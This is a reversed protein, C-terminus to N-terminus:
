TRAWYTVGDFEIAAYDAKLADAAAEWDIHCAPWPADRGIAGIDEALQEAYETFYSDRIFTQRHLWDPFGEGDTAFKQLAKLEEAEEDKFDEEEQMDELAAIRDIVDRSDIIDEYNTIDNSM